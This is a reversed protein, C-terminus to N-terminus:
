KRKGIALVGGIIGLVVGGIFLAVEKRGTNALRKALENYQYKIFKYEQKLQDIKGNCLDLKKQISNTRNILNNIDKKYTEIMKNFKNIILDINDVTTVNQRIGPLFSLTTAFPPMSVVAPLYNTPAVALSIASVNSQPYYILYLIKEKRSSNLQNDEIKMEKLNYNTYPKVATVYNISTQSSNSGKTVLNVISFAMPLGPLPITGNGIAITTTLNNKYLYTYAITATTNSAYSAPIAIALPLNGNYIINTEIFPSYKYFIILQTIVINKYTYKLQISITDNGKVQVATTANSLHVLSGNEVLSIGLLPVTTNLPLILANKNLDNHAEVYVIGGKAGNLEINYFYNNIIIKSGNISYSLKPAPVTNIVTQAQAVTSAHVLSVLGLLLLMSVIALSWKRDSGKGM